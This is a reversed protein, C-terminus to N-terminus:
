EMGHLDGGAADDDATGPSVEDGELDLGVLADMAHAVRGEVPAFERDGRVEDLVDDRREDAAHEIRFFTKVTCSWLVVAQRM